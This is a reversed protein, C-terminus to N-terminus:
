GFIPRYYRQYIPEFARLDRQAALVIASEEAARDDGPQTEDDDARVTNVFGGSHGWRTDSTVTDAAVPNV